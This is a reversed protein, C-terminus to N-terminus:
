TKQGDTEGGKIADDIRKGIQSLVALTHTVSTFSDPAWTSGHIFKFVTNIAALVNKWDDM